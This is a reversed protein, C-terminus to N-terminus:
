NANTLATRLHTTISIIRDGSSLSSMPVEEQIHKRTYLYLKKWNENASTAGSLGCGM